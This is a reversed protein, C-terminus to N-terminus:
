NTQLCCCIMKKKLHKMKRLFDFEKVITKLSLDRMENVSMKKVDRAINTIYM